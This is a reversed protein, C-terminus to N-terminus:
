KLLKWVGGIERRLTLSFYRSVMHKPSAQAGPVFVTWLNAEGTWKTMTSSVITCRRLNQPCRIAYYGAKPRERALSGMCALIDSRQLARQIWASFNRFVMLVILCTLTHFSVAIDTHDEDKIVQQEDMEYSLVISDRYARQMWSLKSIVHELLTFSEGSRLNRLWM